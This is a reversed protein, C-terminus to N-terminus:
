YSWKLFLKKRRAIKSLFDITIIIGDAVSGICLQVVMMLTKKKGWQFKMDVLKIGARNKCMM